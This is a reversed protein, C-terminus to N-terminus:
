SARCSPQKPRYRLCLGFNGMSGALTGQRKRSSYRSKRGRAEHSRFGLGNITSTDSIARSVNHIQRAHSSAADVADAWNYKLRSLAEWSYRTLVVVAAAVSIPVVPTVELVTPRVSVFSGFM